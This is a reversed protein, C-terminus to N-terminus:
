AGQRDEAAGHPAHQLGQLRHRACGPEEDQEGDALCPPRASSRAAFHASPQVLPNPLPQSQ